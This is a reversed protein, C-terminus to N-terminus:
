PPGGGGTATSTPTPPTVGASGTTTPAATPATGASGVTTTGCEGKAGRSSAQCTCLSLATSQAKCASGSSFKGSQCTSNAIECDAVADFETSCGYASAENKAEDAQAVCAAKDKDNGGICGQSKDCFDSFRSSCSPLAGLVALALVGVFTSRVKM